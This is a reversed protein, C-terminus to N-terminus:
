LSSWGAYRRERLAKPLGPHSAPEQKGTTPNHGREWVLVLDTTDLVGEAIAAIPEYDAKKSFRALHRAVVVRRETLFPPTSAAVGIKTCEFDGTETRYDAETVIELMLSRDGDGVLEDTVATVSEGALVADAADILRLVM